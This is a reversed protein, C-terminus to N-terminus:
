EDNGAGSSSPPPADFGPERYAKFKEPFDEKDTVLRFRNARQDKLAQFITRITPYPTNEDAKVLIDILKNDLANLQANELYAQRAFKIYKYLQSEKGGTTDTPIGEFQPRAYYKEQESVKMSLFRPLDEFPVGIEPTLRFMDVQQQNLSLNYDQQIYGLMTERLISEDQGQVGIFIKGDAGTSIRLVAPTLSDAPADEGAVEGLDVSSPTTAVVQEEPQFQITLMFFTILLFALDVMPAMDIFTSKRKVQIKPM